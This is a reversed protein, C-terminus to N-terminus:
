GKDGTAAVEIKPRLVGLLRSYAGAIGTEAAGEVIGSIESQLTELRGAAALAELAFRRSVSYGDVTRLTRIASEIATEESM